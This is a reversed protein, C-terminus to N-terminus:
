ELMPNGSSEGSCEEADDENEPAAEGNNKKNSGDNNHDTDERAPCRTELLQLRRRFDGMEREMLFIREKLTLNEEELRAIHADQDDVRSELLDAASELGHEEGPYLMEFRSVDHDLRREVELHEEVDSESSGEEDEVDEEGGGTAAAPRIEHGSPSRLRILGKMSGYGDVGWEEKVMDALDERTPSFRPTPLVAPTVPCPSVLSAIGGSKKARIIFSTTNRPAFPASRLFKKKPYFRRAKVRNQFQLEHLTPPRYGSVGAGAGGGGGLPVGAGVGGSITAAKKRMDAAKKAKWNTRGPKVGGPAAFPPPPPVPNPFGMSEEAVPPPWIGFSRNMLQSPDNM